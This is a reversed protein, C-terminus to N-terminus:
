LLDDHKKKRFDEVQKDTLLELAVACQPLNNATVLYEHKVLLFRGILNDRNRYLELRRDKTLLAGSGINFRSGDKSEVELAGLRDHCWGDGQIVGTIKYIDTLTPKFKLLNASRKTEYLGDLKRFMIGEYGAKTYEALISKWTDPRGALSAVIKIPKLNEENVIFHTIQNLEIDRAVQHKENKIDFIHYCLTFEDPHPNETRSAISNIEALTKGHIYLEGDYTHRPLMDLANRIHQLFPKLSMTSSYLEWKKTEESYQALCRVGNLKPQTLFLPGLNSIRKEEAPHALM